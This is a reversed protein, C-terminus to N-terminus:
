PRGDITWCGIRVPWGPTPSARGAGRRDGSGHDPACRRPGPGERRAVPRPPRHRRRRGRLRGEGQGRGRPTGARRRRRGRAATERGRGRRHPAAHRGAAGGRAPRGRRRAAGRRAREAGRRHGRGAAAAAPFRAWRRRRWRAAGAASRTRSGRCKADSPRRALQCRAPRSLRGRLLSPWTATGLACWGDVVGRRRESRRAPRCRRRRARSRRRIRGRWSARSTPRSCSATRPRRTEPPRRRGEPARRDPAPAVDRDRAGAADARRRGADDASRRLRPRRGPEGRRRLREGTSGRLDGITLRDLVDGFSPLTADYAAQSVLRAARAPDLVATLTVDAATLGPTVPDFPLGTYRPFLERHMEYGAPRPALADLVRSPM